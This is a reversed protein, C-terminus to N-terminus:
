VPSRPWRPFGKGALALSKSRRRKKASRQRKGGKKIFVSVKTGCSACRGTVRAPTGGPTPPIERAKSVTVKKKCKVCYAKL